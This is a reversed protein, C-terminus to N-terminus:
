RLGGMILGKEDDGVQMAVKKYIIGCKTQNNTMMSLFCISIAILLFFFQFCFSLEKIYIRKYIYM